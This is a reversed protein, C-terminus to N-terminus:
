GARELFDALAENFGPARQVAHGAGSLVADWTM